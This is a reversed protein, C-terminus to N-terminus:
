RRIVVFRVASAEGPGRARLRRMRWWLTGFAVLGAGILVPLLLGLFLIALAVLVFGGAAATLMLAVGGIRVLARDLWTGEAASPAPADRFTGDPNMDLVPPPSPRRLPTM